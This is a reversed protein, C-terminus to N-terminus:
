HRAEEEEIARLLEDATSLRELRKRFAESGLLLSLKALAALHANGQRGPAVLVFFLHTPKGDISEFEVGGASRGFSVLLRRASELRAHPIAIGDGLATTGLREREQLMALLDASALGPVAGCLAEALEVLAEAKTGAKMDLRCADRVLIDSLKM